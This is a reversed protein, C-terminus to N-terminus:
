PSGLLGPLLIEGSRFRPVGTPAIIAIPRQIFKGIGSDTKFKVPAQFYMYASLACKTLKPSPRFALYAIYMYWQFVRPNCNQVECFDLCLTHVLNLAAAIVIVVPACGGPLLM